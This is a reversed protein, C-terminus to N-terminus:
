VEGEGGDGIVVKNFISGTLNGVIRLIAQLQSQICSVQRESRAYGTEHVTFFQPVGVM